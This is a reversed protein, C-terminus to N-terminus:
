IRVPIICPNEYSVSPSNDFINEISIEITVRILGTKLDFIYRRNDTNEFDQTKTVIMNWRTNNKELKLGLNMSHGASFPMITPTDDGSYENLYAVTFPSIIEEKM